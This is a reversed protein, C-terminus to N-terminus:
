APTSPARGRLRPLAVDVVTEAIAIAADCARGDTDGGPDYATLAAAAIEVREAILHLADVVDRRLLGGTAVFGNARMEAIDHVDLDVHVYVRDVRKALVDLAPGLAEHVGRRVVDSGIVTMASAEFLSREWTDLQHGGVFIVHDDRVPVHGEVRRALTQWCRGTLMALAMGDFFGSFSTEPTNVDGHADFWIVGTGPGLGAVTGVASNCNGSLVIPLAGRARASRVEAAVLQQLMSATGVERQFPLPSELVVADCGGSRRALREALGRELLHLPGAGMRAARQGSDYPAAVLQVPPLPPM